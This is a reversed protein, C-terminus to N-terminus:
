VPDGAHVGVEESRLFYITDLALSQAVRTVDARTVAELAQLLDDVERHVGALAGSFHIDALSLPQDGLQLFQNRLGRKAFALEQESVEGAKLAEVQACIIALAQDYKGVDIGTQVMLVGSLGDLRSSAYYALSAKERVNVFLKSTPSGGLVANAVLLAPYDPSAYSVGTRFGLNLKGQQVPQHEVVHRVESGRPSLATVPPAAHARVEAAFPSFASLLRGLLAEAMRGEDAFAGIAYVHVDASALLARHEQWLTSGSLHALDELYGLRPLGHPHGSCVSELCREMAYQIKDDRISEIRKRHLVKEKEVHEPVFGDGAIAPATIVETLLAAAADFLGDAGRLAREEPVSAYAEVVQRDGKKGAGTRVVAGYLDDARRMLARMNPLSATGELWLYPLLATATVHHRALPRALKVDLYRTRFQSTALVHLHFRGRRHTVFGPM